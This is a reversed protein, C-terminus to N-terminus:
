CEVSELNRPEREGVEEREGIEEREGHETDIETETNEPM